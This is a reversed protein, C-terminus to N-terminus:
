AMNAGSEPSIWTWDRMRARFWSRQRKAYQRTLITANEVAKELPLDNHLYAILDAAGIARDSPRAPDWDVLNARCEALAGQDMMRAFRKNIRPTLWEKPADIVLANQVAGELPVLPASTNDQWDALGTATSQFVEWARQVRVPNNVDIRAATKPDHKQLDALLGAHGEAKIREDATARVENRVNPIDALGNSLASLYLGTGGVIIPTRKPQAALVASVERLWEGVSYVQDRGVHGYLEHPALALEAADPRATLVRWCGYVQLADANIIVGDFRDALMLALASKGSATPGALLIPRDPDIQKLWQVKAGRENNTQNPARIEAASAM